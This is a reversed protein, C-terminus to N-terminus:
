QAPQESIEATLAAHADAFGDFSFPVSVDRQAGDQFAVAGEGSRGVLDTMVAEPVDVEALCSQQFCRKYDAVAIEEEGVTLRVDSALWVALPTQVVLRFAGAETGPAFAVQAVPASQGQVGIAQFMECNRTAPEESTMECRVTWDGYTATTRQPTQAWASAGLALSAAALAGTLLTKMCLEKACNEAEM